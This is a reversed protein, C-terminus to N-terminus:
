RNSEEPLYDESQYELKKLDVDFMATLLPEGGANVSFEGYRAAEYLKAHGEQFFFANTAFKIQGDRVRYQLKQQNPALTQYASADSVIGNFHALHQADLTVIVFGDHNNLQSPQQETAVGDISETNTAPMLATRIDNAIKFRLAMYDGQMLSRPDVPALELYVKVGHALHQEKQYIQWNVLGLLIVLTGFLLLKELGARKQALRQTLKNM